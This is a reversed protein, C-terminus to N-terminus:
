SRAACHGADDDLVAEQIAGCFRRQNWQASAEKPIESCGAIPVGLGAAGGPFARRLRGFGRSRNEAPEGIVLM